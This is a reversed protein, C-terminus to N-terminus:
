LCKSAAFAAIGGLGGVVTTVKAITLIAYGVSVEFAGATVARYTEYGIWPQRSYWAIYVGSAVAAALLVTAVIPLVRRRRSM